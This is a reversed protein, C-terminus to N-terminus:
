EGGFLAGCFVIIEMPGEPGKFIARTIEAAAPGPATQLGTQNEALALGALEDVLAGVLLTKGNKFIVIRSKGSIRGAALGLRVRLDVVPTLEGRLNIVGLLFDPSNPVKFVRTEEALLIEQVYGAEMGFPRGDLFFKIFKTM